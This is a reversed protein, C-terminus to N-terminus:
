SLTAPQGDRFGMRLRQQLDKVIEPDCRVLREKNPIALDIHLRSRRGTNGKNGVLGVQRGQGADLVM